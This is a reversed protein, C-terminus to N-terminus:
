ARRRKLRRALGIGALPPVVLALLEGYVLLGLSVLEGVFLIAGFVPIGLGAGAVTPLDAGAARYLAALVAGHFAVAIAALWLNESWWVLSIAVAVTLPMALAAGVTLMSRAVPEREAVIALHHVHVATLTASTATTVLCCCCCCCGGCTPTAPQTATAPNDFATALRM